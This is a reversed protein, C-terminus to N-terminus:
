NKTHKKTIDKKEEKIYLQYCEYLYKCALEIRKAIFWNIQNSDLLNKITELAKEYHMTINEKTEFIPKGNILKYACNNLFPINFEILQKSAYAYAVDPYDFAEEMGLKDDNQIMIKTYKLGLEYEREEQEYIIHKTISM